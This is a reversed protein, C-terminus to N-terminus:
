LTDKYDINMFLDRAEQYPFEGPIIYKVKKGKSSFIERDIAKLVKEITRNEHIFKYAKIAGIGTITSTYDSGCIICLDVFEEYSLDLCSLVKELEIQIM